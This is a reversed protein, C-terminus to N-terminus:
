IPISAKQLRTRIAPATFLALLIKIMDGPLFPLVTTLFSLSLSVGSQFSYWLAGLFYCCLTGFLFGLFATLKRRRKPALFIGGCLPILLYGALYGGTPGLLRGVGGSFGSFVPIGMFGLLLYLACSYFTNRGGFLYLSLYLVFTTLSLPVPTFPLPITFPSIVCIVATILAITVM